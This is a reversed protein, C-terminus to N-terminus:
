VVIVRVRLHVCLSATRRGRCVCLYQTKMRTLDPLRLRIRWHTRTTKKLKSLIKMLVNATVEAPIRSPRKLDYSKLKKYKTLEIFNVLCTLQILNSLYSLM